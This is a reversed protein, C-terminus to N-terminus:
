EHQRGTGSSVDPLQGIDHCGDPARYFSRDNRVTEHEVADASM